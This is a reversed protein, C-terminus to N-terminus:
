ESSLIGVLCLKEHICKWKIKLKKMKKRFYGEVFECHRTQEDKAAKNLNSQSTLNMTKCCKQRTLNFCRANLKRSRPLLESMLWSGWTEPLWGGLFTESPLVSVSLFSTLRKLEHLNVLFPVTITTLFSEGFWWCTDITKLKMSEAYFERTYSGDNTNQISYCYISLSATGPMM